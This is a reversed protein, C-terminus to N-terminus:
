KLDKDTQQKILEQMYLTENYSFRCNSYPVTHHLSQSFIIFKLCLYSSAKIEPGKEIKHRAAERVSARHGRGEVHTRMTSLQQPAGHLQVVGQDRRVGVINHGFKWCTNCRIMVCGSLM